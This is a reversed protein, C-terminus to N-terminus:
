GELKYRTLHDAWALVIEGIEMEHSEVQQSPIDSGDPLYALTIHPTFGHDKAIDVGVAELAEVLEQRFQPLIGADFSAYYPMGDKAGAFCGVGGTKGKVPAHKKAFGELVKKILSRQHEIEAAKGLYVLTVHLNDAPEITSDGPVDKADLALEKAVKDPLFLAIMAGSHKQATVTRYWM